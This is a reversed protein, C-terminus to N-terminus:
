FRFLHSSCSFISIYYVMMVYLAITLLNNVMKGCTFVVINNLSHLIILPSFVLVGVSNVVPVIGPEAVPVMDPDVVPGMGPDVVPVMGPDVVLGGVIEEPFVLAKTSVWRVFALLVISVYQQWVFLLMSFVVQPRPTLQSPFHESMSAM